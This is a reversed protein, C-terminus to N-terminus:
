VMNIKGHVHMQRVKNLINLTAGKELISIYRTVPLTYLQREMSMRCLVLCHLVLSNYLLWLSSLFCLTCKVNYHLVRICGFKKLQEMCSLVCMYM